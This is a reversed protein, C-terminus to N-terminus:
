HFSSSRLPRVSFNDFYPRQWGCGLGALGARYRSDNVRGQPKGNILVTIEDKAFRLGIRQWRDSAFVAKGSRLM